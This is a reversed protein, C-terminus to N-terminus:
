RGTQRFLGWLKEATDRVFAEVTVADGLDAMAQEFDEATLSAEARSLNATEQVGAPGWWILKRATLNGNEAVRVLLSAVAGAKVASTHWHFVDRLRTTAKNFHRNHVAM